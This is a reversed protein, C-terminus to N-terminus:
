VTRAFCEGCSAAVSLVERAFAEGRRCFTRTSTPAGGGGEGPHGGFIRADWFLAGPVQHRHQLLLHLAQHCRSLLRLSLSVRLTLNETLAATRPVVSNLLSFSEGM